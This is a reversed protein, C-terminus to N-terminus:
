KLNNIEDFDIKKKSLKIRIERVEKVSDGTDQVSGIQKELFAYSKLQTISKDMFVICRM